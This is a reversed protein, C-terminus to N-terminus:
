DADQLRRRVADRAVGYSFGRSVLFRTLREYPRSQPLSKRRLVALAREFEDESQFFTDPYGPLEQVSVGRRRLEQEIKLQGWGRRLREEIFSAAFREDSVFRHEQARRLSADIEQDRYGYALLKRRVEVESMDRRALMETLLTFCVKGELAHIQDFAADEDQPLAVAGSALLRGVRVPVVIERERGNELVVSVAAMPKKGMAACRARDQKTPLTVRLETVVLAM